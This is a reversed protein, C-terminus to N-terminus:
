SLRRLQTTGLTLLATARILISGIIVLTTAAGIHDVAHGMPLAGLPMLGFMMMNLSM